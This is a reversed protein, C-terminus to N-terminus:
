NEKVIDEIIHFINSVDKGNVDEGDEGNADENHWSFIM